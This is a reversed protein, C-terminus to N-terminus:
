KGAVNIRQTADCWFIASLLPRRSRWGCPLRDLLQRYGLSVSVHVVSRGDSEADYTAAQDAAFAEGAQRRARHPGHAVEVESARFVEHRGGITEGRVVEIIKEGVWANIGDDDSGEVGREAAQRGTRHQVAFVNEDFFRGRAGDGFEVGKGVGGLHAAHAHTDAIVVTEM